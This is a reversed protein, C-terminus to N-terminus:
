KRGGIQRVSGAEQKQIAKRAEAIRKKMRADFAALGDAGEHSAAPLWDGRFMEGRKLPRATLSEM